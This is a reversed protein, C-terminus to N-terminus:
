PKRGTDQPAQAGDAGAQAQKGMEAATRLLTKIGAAFGLFTFVVMLFPMTGLLVDLGYGIGFGIGLGSVLEIVMRWAMNAQSFKDGVPNPGDEVQRAEALREELRRLRDAHSEEASDDPKEAM